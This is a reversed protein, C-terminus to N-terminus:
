SDIATKIYNQAKLAFNMEDNSIHKKRGHVVASRLNYFAKITQSIDNASDKYNLKSIVEQMTASISGGSNLLAEAAIALNIILEDIRQPRGRYDAQLAYAYYRLAVGLYGNLIDERDRQM